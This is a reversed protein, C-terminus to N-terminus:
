QKEYKRLTLEEQFFLCNTIRNFLEEENIPKSVYETMGANLCREREGPMAQATMAIIPLRLKLSNRIYQTVEYGNWEPMQIDMLILDYRNFALNEIALKGNSFIDYKFGWDKLMLVALKQNLLNDELVLIGIKDTIKQPVIRNVSVEKNFPAAQTIMYKTNLVRGAPQRCPLYTRQILFRM